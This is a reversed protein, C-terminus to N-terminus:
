GNKSFKIIREPVVFHSLELIEDNNKQREDYSM